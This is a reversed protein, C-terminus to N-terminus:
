SHRPYSWFRRGFPMIVPSDEGAMVAEPHYKELHYRVTQEKRRSVDIMVLHKGQELDDHFRAIKYNERTVGALGGSWTGFLTFIGAILILVPLPLPAGFPTWSEIIVALVLGTAGGLIAGLEGSHIVDNEQFIHSSHVQRHYLGAKNRSLVHIHWDDIGQNHMDQSIGSVSDLSSTLYYLRKM